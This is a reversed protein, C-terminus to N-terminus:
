GTVPPATARARGGHLAVMAAAAGGTLALTALVLFWGSPDGSADDADDVFATGLGDCSIHISGTTPATFSAVANRSSTDTGYRTLVLTRQGAVDGSADDAWTCSLDSPEIGQQALGAIGGPFSLEYDHNVTVRVTPAAIPDPAYAHSETGALLRYLAGFAIGLVLLIVAFLAARPLAVPRDPM